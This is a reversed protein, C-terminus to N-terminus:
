ANLLDEYIQAYKAAVQRLDFHEEVRRRGATGMQAARTPDKLMELIAEAFLRPDRSPVLVGTVGRTVLESNGGVDTAVIPLGAAMAELLSISLGETVSSLVFLDAQQLLADIDHRFGLFRVHPRLCLEDCLAELHPRSPGDGVIDLEFEPSVDAVLRAARLLMSQDKVPDDLRAVHILRFRGRQTTTEHRAFRELDIGNPVVCLKREPIGDFTRAVEAADASVAVVQHTLRSAVNNIVKSSWGTVRHQGHRTHVVVPAGGIRAAIGGVLHPAANHTHLVDPQLERLRRAVALVSRVPGKHHVDLSEVPIGVADFAPGLGGIEGLCLVRVSFRDRDTCRVLDYVVKELGGIHLTLVLHVVGIKEFAPRGKVFSTEIAAVSM